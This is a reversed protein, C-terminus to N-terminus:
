YFQMLVLLYVYLSQLPTEFFCLIHRTKKVNWLVTTKITRRGCYINKRVVIIIAETNVRDIDIVPWDKNTCLVSSQKNCM